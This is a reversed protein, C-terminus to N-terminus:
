LNKPNQSTFIFRSKADSTNEFNMKKKVVKGFHINNLEYWRSIVIESEYSSKGYMSSKVQSQHCSEKKDILPKEATKSLAAKSMIENQSHSQSPQHHVTKSGNHETLFVQPNRTLAEDSKTQQIIDQQIESGMM